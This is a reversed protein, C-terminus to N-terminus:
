TAVLLATRPLFMLSETLDDVQSKRFRSHGQCGSIVLDAHLREAQTEVLEAFSAGAAADEDTAVSPEIGYHRLFRLLGGQGHYAPAKGNAGFPHVVRVAQAHRLLPLALSVTRAAQATDQWAVLVRKGIEDPCDPPVLLVPRGSHLLIDKLLGADAGPPGEDADPRGLVLLDCGRAHDLLGADDNAFTTHCEFEKRGHEACLRSFRALARQAREMLLQRCVGEQGTVTMLVLGLLGANQRVAIRIAALMRAVGHRSEDVQVLIAKYTM